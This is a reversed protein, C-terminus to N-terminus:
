RDKEDIGRAGAMRWGKLRTNGIGPFFFFGKIKLLNVALMIAPQPVGSLNSAM